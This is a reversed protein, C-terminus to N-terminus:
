PPSHAHPRPGKYRAQPDQLLDLPFFLLRHGWSLMPLMWRLQLMPSLDQGPARCPCEYPVTMHRPCLPSHAILVSGLSM